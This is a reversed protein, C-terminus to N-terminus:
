GYMLNPIFMVLNPFLVLITSEVLVLIIWPICAKIYDDLKIDLIGCVTYMAMGVPPTMNGMTVVTCLVMGFVVPDIGFSQVLPLLIPVRGHEFSPLATRVCGHDTRQLPPYM